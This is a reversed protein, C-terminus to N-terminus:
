DGARFRAALNEILEPNDRFRDSELTNTAIGLYAEKVRFGLSLFNHGDKRAMDIAMQWRADKLNSSM